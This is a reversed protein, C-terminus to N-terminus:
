RKKKFVFAANHRIMTAAREVADELTIKKIKFVEEVGKELHPRFADIFMDVKPLGFRVGPPYRDAGKEVAAKIVGEDGVWALSGEWKDWTEKMAMKKELVDRNAIATTAPPRKPNQVGWKYDDVAVATRAEYKKLWRDAPKVL